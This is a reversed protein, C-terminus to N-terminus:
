PGRWTRMLSTSDRHRAIRDVTDLGSVVFALEALALRIQLIAEDSPMDEADDLFHQAQELRERTPESEAAEVACELNELASSMLQDTYDERECAATLLGVAITTSQHVELTVFNLVREDTWVIKERHSTLSSM